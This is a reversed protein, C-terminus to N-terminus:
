QTMYIFNSTMVSNFKTCKKWRIITAESRCECCVSADRGYQYSNATENRHFGRQEMQLWEHVVMEGAETIHFRRGGLDSGGSTSHECGDKSNQSL